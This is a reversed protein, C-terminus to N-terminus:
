FKEICIRKKLGKSSEGGWSADETLKRKRSSEYQLQKIMDMMLEMKMQGLKRAEEINELKNKLNEPSWEVQADLWSATTKSADTATQSTQSTAVCILKLSCESHPYISVLVCQVAQHKKRLKESMTQLM